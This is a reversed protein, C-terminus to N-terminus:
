RWSEKLNQSLLESLEGNSILKVSSIKALEIAERTFNSNTVVMARNCDYFKQASIAQQVADNGVTGTYCKAQIAIRQGDKNAILDAGQDGTKGTKQVAYGMAEFLRYLLNEFEPGSLEAFKTPNLSVSERILRDEKKDIYNELLSYIGDLKHTSFNMGKENLIKRFTELQNQDFSYGRYSWDSKKGKQIGWRSIFNNVDVELGAQQIANVIRDIKKQRSKEKIKIAALIGAVLLIAAGLGYGLWHWFETKNINWEIFLSFIYFLIILYIIKFLNDEEYQKKYHRTM